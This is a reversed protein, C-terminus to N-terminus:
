EDGPAANVPQAVETVPHRLVHCFSYLTLGMFFISTLILMVVFLTLGSPRGLKARQAVSLEEPLKKAYSWTRAM